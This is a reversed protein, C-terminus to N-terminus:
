AISIKERVSEPLSHLESTARATVNSILQPCKFSKPKQTSIINNSGMNLNKINVSRKTVHFIRSSYFFFFFFRIIDTDSIRQVRKVKLSKISWKRSTRSTVFASLNM